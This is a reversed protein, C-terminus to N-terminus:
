SVEKDYCFGGLNLKKLVGLPGEYFNSKKLRCFRSYTDRPSEYRRRVM